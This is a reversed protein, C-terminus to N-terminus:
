AKALKNAEKFAAVRNAVETKAKKKRLVMAGAVSWALLIAVFAIGKAVDEPGTYPVQNLYVSGVTPPVYPITGTTINVDRDDEDEDDRVRVTCTDRAVRGDDDTVKLDIEYTGERNFRVTIEDDDGDADGSWDYEYPRDGGDVRAKLTVRENRDVTTRAPVCIADFGEPEDDEEVRVECEASDTRGRSDTVRVTARYTGEDDFRVTVIRSSSTFDGTWRYTYPSRGGDVEAEFTVSEGVEVTRDSPICIVNLEQAPPQPPNCNTRCPQPWPTYCNSGCNSGGNYSYDDYYGYDDEYYDEYYYDEYYGEFNDNEDYWAYDEYDYFDTSGYEYYDVYDYFDTSGYSYTDAYDYFDTSGYDYYSSYDYFDTSGYEYYDEYDYFDTSGYSYSDSYDYFDTSGYDYYSSYDYFDTSGYSYSDAYDYFDTSGYEYSDYDARALAPVLAFVAIFAIAINKIFKKM